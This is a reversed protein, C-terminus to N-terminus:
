KLINIKRWKQNTGLGVSDGVFNLLHFMIYHPSFHPSFICCFEVFNFVSACGQAVGLGLSLHGAPRRTERAAVLYM